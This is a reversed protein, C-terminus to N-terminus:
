DATRHNVLVARAAPQRHGIARGLFADDTLGQVIRAHFRIRDRIDLCVTRTGGQAIRDLDPCQALHEPRAGHLPREKHARHFGIEPVQFCRSPYGADDLQDQAKQVFIERGVEMAFLGIGTDSPIAPGKQLKSMFPHGPFLSVLRADGADTSETDTSGIGM